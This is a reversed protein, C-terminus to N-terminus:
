RLELVAVLARHDSGPVTVSQTDLARVGEGVLVHDIQLLPPVGIGLPGRRDTDPWTPQWGSIAAESATVFGAERLTRLPRHDVTANLDGAVVTPGEATTAARLVARHDARWRDADGTPPFPHAAVLDIEGDPLAVRMRYGGFSTDLQRVERVPGTAFVMTGGVGDLAEGAEYPYVRRLGLAEMRSQAAPTIESFVLVDARNQLALDVIRAADARGWFLNATLVTFPDGKAAQAADQGVYPGSAWFVHLGLLVSTVALSVRATTRRRGRAAVAVVVLLLCSLAYPVIAFPTFSVLRVWTGGEPEALRAVTVMWAPVLLAVLLLGLVPWRLKM